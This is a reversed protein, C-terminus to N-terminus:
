TLNLGHFLLYHYWVQSLHGILELSSVLTAQPVMPPAPMPVTWHEPLGPTGSPLTHMWTPGPTEGAIRDKETYGLHRTVESDEGM